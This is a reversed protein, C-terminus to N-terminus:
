LILANDNHINAFNDTLDELLIGNCEVIISRPNFYILNNRIKICKSSIKKYDTDLQNNYPDLMLKAHLNEASSTLPHLEINHKENTKKILEVKSNYTILFEKFSINEPL